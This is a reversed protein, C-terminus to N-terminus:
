STNGSISWSCRTIPASLYGDIISLYFDPRGFDPHYLLFKVDRDSDSILFVTDLNGNWSNSFRGSKIRNKPRGSKQSDSNKSWRFKQDVSNKILRLRNLGTVTTLIKWFTDYSVYLSRYTVKDFTHYASNMFTIWGDAFYNKYFDIGTSLSPHAQFKLILGEM